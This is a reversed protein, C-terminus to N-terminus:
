NVEHLVVWGRRDKKPFPYPKEYRIVKSVHMLTAYRCGQRSEWFLPDSSSCLQKGYQKEMMKLDNNALDSLSIVDRVIFEGLVLGGSEKMFVIDGVKVAGFPACKVRSFRSEITKQRNLVLDLFPQTFIALHKVCTSRNIPGQPNRQNKEM